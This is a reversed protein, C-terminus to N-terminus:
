RNVLKAPLTLILLAGIVLTVSLFLVAAATGGTAMSVWGVIVPGFFGSLNAFSNIVALGAAAAVGGLIATPLNWFLAPISILGM